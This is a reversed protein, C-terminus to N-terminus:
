QINLDTIMKQGFVSIRCKRKGKVAKTRWIRGFVRGSAINKEMWIRYFGKIKRKDGSCDGLVLRKRPGNKKWARSTQSGPGECIVM